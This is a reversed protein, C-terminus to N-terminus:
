PPPPTGIVSQYPRPTRSSSKFVLGGESLVIKIVIKYPLDINTKAHFMHEATADRILQIM